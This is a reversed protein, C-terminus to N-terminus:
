HEAIFDKLKSIATSLMIFESGIEKNVEYLTKGDARTYHLTTTAMTGRMAVAVNDKLIFNRASQAYYVIDRLAAIDRKTLKAM